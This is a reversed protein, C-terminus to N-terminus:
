FRYRQFITLGNSSKICVIGPNKYKIGATANKPIPITGPTNAETINANGGVTLIVFKPMREIEFLILLSMRNM